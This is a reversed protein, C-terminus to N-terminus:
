PGVCRLRDPLVPYVQRVWSIAADAHRRETEGYRLGFAERLQPPLLRATVARYWGPASLWVAGGELLAEAIRRADAGVTLTDSDWIKENYGTFAAWTGPMRDEPIGFLPALLKCEAYYQQLRRERLPPYILEYTALMTDVLTAHVWHLAGIENAAYLSGLPFPGAEEALRGMVQAHRAHLRRATGLVQDLSGFVMTFMVNFTRHFRDIPDTLTRSHERIGTSVWPHALQLLLARGAGLFIAQERALQWIVSDPGYLGVLPEKAVARVHSLQRELDAETVTDLTM